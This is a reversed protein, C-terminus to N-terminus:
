FIFDIGTSIIVVDGDGDPDHNVPNPADGAFPNVGEDTMSSVDFKIAMRPKYDFRIGVSDTDHKEFPLDLDFKSHMVYFTSKKYRYTASGFASSYFPRYKNYELMISLPGITQQAFIDFFEITGDSELVTTPRTEELEATTYSFKITTNDNSIELGAGAIETFERNIAEGFLYTMLESDNIQRGSYLNTTFNIDGLYMRHNLQAGNFNTLDLSYADAPVRIWPYAYGVDMFESFYYVPLRLKGAQLEIDDALSYNVFLWEVEPEYDNNARSMVQLTASLDDNVTAVSQIGIRTEQGIDFKDDYFGLNPYEGIYGSGESVQAGIVSGFGSVRINDNAYSHMALLVSAAATCTKLIPIKIM